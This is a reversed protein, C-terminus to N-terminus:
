EMNSFIAGCAEFMPKSTALLHIDRQQAMNITAEDPRKDRVFVIARLDVVDATRVSQANVLGTLLLEGADSSTLVDSMLDSARITEVELSLDVNATLEVANLLKKIEELKM